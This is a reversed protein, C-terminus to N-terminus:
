KRAAEEEPDDNCRTTSGKATKVTFCRKEAPPPATAASQSAPAPPKAPRASPSAAAVPPKLAPTVSARGTVDGASTLGLLHCENGSYTIRGAVDKCKYMGQGAAANCQAMGWLALGLLAIPFKM